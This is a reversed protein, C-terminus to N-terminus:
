NILYYLRGQLERISQSTSVFASANPVFAKPTLKNTAQKFDTAYPIITLGQCEFLHQARKMHFASTVLIIKLDPQDKFLAKIAKAEDATNQVAETLIIASEPIGLKLAYNKLFDGETEATQEWPLLGSTFILKPARKAQYLNIGGWFRSSIEWQRFKIGNIKKLETMGSLVIIVDALEVQEPLQKIQGKELYSKLYNATFSSSFICLMLFAGFMYRRKKTFLGLVILGFILGLPSLILPLFKHLYIMM